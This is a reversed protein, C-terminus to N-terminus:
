QRRHGWPEEHCPVFHRWKPHNATCSHRIEVRLRSRIATTATIPNSCMTTKHPITEIGSRERASGTGRRSRFVRDYALFEHQSGWHVLLCIDETEPDLRHPSQIRCFAASL